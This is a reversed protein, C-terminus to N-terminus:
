RETRPREWCANRTKSEISVGTPMRIANIAYLLQKWLLSCPYVARPRRHDDNNIEIKKEQEDKVLVTRFM